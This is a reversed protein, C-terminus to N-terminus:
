DVLDFALREPFVIVSLFLCDPFGKAWDFQYIFNDM